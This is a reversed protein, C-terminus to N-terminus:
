KHGQGRMMIVVPNLSAICSCEILLSELEFIGLDFM